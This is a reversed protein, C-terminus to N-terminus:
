QPEVKLTWTVPIFAEKIASALRQHEQETETVAKDMDAKGEPGHFIQKIQKTEFAQRAAVAADVKAFASSFPNIPFEEPLNIGATLQGAAFTKTEDGFTVKYATAKGNQVTLTFRNLDKDFPVLGLASRISGDSSPNDKSCDPYSAAVQGAPECALFPYRTSKFKYEGHNESVLEHGKNAYFRQRGVDIRFNGIQGDLGLAKLFAYAMVTHGAWGPHVGDKGAIAYNTGFKARAEVGATIMPWFVDAFRVQEKEAIGIGINRLTCLSQNLDDVSGSASKVWSPMKGVCGPSGMVVRAGNAKFAEVIALSKEEYTKGIRDEYPRYEHDNMGYCTTAITPKFRLCDNTMRALFGPAREGSWGYQRVTVDLEPVCMTLYDEILRSYMRQETISDGCIALRDGAKLYLGTAPPAKAPKFKRLEPAIQQGQASCLVFAALAGSCVTFFRSMIMRWNKPGAVSGDLDTM